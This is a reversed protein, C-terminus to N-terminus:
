AAYRLVRSPSVAFGGGGGGIVLGLLFDHPDENMIFLIHIPRRRKTSHAQETSSTGQSIDYMAIFPFRSPDASIRMRFPLRRPLISSNFAPHFSLQGQLDALRHHLVLRGVHHQSIAAFVM